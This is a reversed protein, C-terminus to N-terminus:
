IVSYIRGSIAIIDLPGAKSPTDLQKIRSVFIITDEREPKLPPLSTRAGSLAEEGATSERETLKLAKM